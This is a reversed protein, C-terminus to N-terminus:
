TVLMIPFKSVCGFILFNFCSRDEFDIDCNADYHLVFYGMIDLGEVLQSLDFM